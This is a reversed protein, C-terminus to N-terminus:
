AAAHEIDHCDECLVVGSVGHQVHYDTVWAAILSKQAFDDDVVEGLEVIAKHLIEAFREGDHHVNLTVHNVGCRQCTFNSAKLKPYTWVSHLHSRVLPQLASTGGRWRGHMSGSPCEIVGSRRNQSMTESRQKRLEVDARVTLTMKEILAKNRPEDPSLGLRWKTMEGNKWMERQTEKSKRKADENHGWGNVVRANHGNAFRAFGNQLTLFRTAEGCGCECTPRVGGHFLMLRLDLSSGKHRKVNHVRLSNLDDYAVDCSPCKFPSTPDMLHNYGM